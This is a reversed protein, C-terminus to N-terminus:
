EDDEELKRLIAELDARTLAHGEITYNTHKPTVTPVVFDSFVDMHELEFRWDEHEDPPADTLVYTQESPLEFDEEGNDEDLHDVTRVDRGATFSDYLTISRFGHESAIQMVDLLHRIDKATVDQMLFPPSEGWEDTSSAQIVLTKTKVAADRM